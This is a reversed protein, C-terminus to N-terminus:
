PSARFQFRKWLSKLIFHIQYVFKTLPKPQRGRPKPESGGIPDPRTRPNGCSRLDVKGESTLYSIMQHYTSLVVKMAHLWARGVIANYPGLDKVVSFLVQQVVPRARVPLTIDGMTVTTAENFGFLIKGALSLRDLSINMQKFALLTLLDTANSLDVLVRHM